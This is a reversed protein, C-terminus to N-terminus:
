PNTTGFPTICQVRAGSFLTMRMTSVAAITGVPSAHSREGGLLHRLELGAANEFARRAAPGVRLGITDFESALRNEGWVLLLLGALAEFSVLRLASHGAAVIDAM